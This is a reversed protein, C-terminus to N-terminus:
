RASPSVPSDSPSVSHRSPANPLVAGMLRGDDMAERKKRRKKETTADGRRESLRDLEEQKADVVCIVKLLVNAVCRVVAEEGCEGSCIEPEPVRAAEADLGFVSEEASATSLPSAPDLTVAAPGALRGRAYPLTYGMVNEFWEQAADRYARLEFAKPM